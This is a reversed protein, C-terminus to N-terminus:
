YNLSNVNRDCVSEMKFKRATEVGDRVRGVEGFNFKSSEPM